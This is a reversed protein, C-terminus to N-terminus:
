PDRIFISMKDLVSYFSKARRKVIPEGISEKMSKTFIIARETCIKPTTDLLDNRLKM